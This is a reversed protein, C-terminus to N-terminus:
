WPWNSIADSINSGVKVLKKVIPTRPKVLGYYNDISSSHEKKCSQKYNELEAAKRANRICETKGANDAIYQKMIAYADQETLDNTYRNFKHDIILLDLYDNIYDYLDSYPLLHQEEKIRDINRNVIKYFSVKDTYVKNDIGSKLICIQRNCYLKYINKYITDLYDPYKTINKDVIALAYYIYAKEDLIEQVRDDHYILLRNFYIEENARFRIRKVEYQTGEFNNILECIIKAIFEIDFTANTALDNLMADFEKEKAEKKINFSIMEAKSRADYEKNIKEIAQKRENETLYKERQHDRYLISISKNLEDTRPTKSEIKM